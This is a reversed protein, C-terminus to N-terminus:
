QHPNVTIISYLKLFSYVTSVNPIINIDGFQQNGYTTISVLHLSNVYSVILFTPRSGHLIHKYISKGIM